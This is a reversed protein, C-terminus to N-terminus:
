SADFNNLFFAQEKSVEISVLCHKINLKNLHSTFSARYSKKSTNDLVIKQNIDDALLQKMLSVCKGKSGLTDQNIIHYGDKELLM